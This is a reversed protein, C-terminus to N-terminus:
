HSVTLKSISKSTCEHTSEKVVCLFALVHRGSKTSPDLGDAFEHHLTLYPQFFKATFTKVFIYSFKKLAVVSLLETCM